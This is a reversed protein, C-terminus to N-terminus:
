ATEGSMPMPTQEKVEYKPLERHRKQPVITARFTRLPMSFESFREFDEMRILYYRQVASEIVAKCEDFRRRAEDAAAQHGDRETRAKEALDPRNRDMAAQVAGQAQAAERSARQYERQSKEIDGCAIDYMGKDPQCHLLFADDKPPDYADYELARALAVIQEKQQEDMGDSLNPFTQVSWHCGNEDSKSRLGHPAVMDFRKLRRNYESWLLGWAIGAIPDNGLPDAFKSGLSRTQADVLATLRDIEAGKVTCDTEQKGYRDMVRELVLNLPAAQNGGDLRVHKELVNWCARTVAIPDDQKKEAARAKNKASLADKQEQTWKRGM